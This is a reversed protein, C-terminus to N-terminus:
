QTGGSAGLPRDRAIPPFYDPEKEVLEYAPDDKAFHETTVYEIEPHDFLFNLIQQLGEKRKLGKRIGETIGEQWERLGDLVFRTILANVSIRMSKHNEVWGWNPPDDRLDQDSSTYSLEEQEVDLLKTVAEIAQKVEPELRLTMAIEKMEHEKRQSAKLESPLELTM